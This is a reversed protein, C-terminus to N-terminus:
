NVTMLHLESFITKAAVGTNFIPNCTLRQTDTKVRVRKCGCMTVIEEKLRHDAEGVVFSETDGQLVTKNKLEHIVNSSQDSCRPIRSGWDAALM